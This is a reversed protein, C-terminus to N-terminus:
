DTYSVELGNARVVTRCDETKISITTGCNSVQCDRVVGPARTRSNVKDQM